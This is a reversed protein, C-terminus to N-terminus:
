ATPSINLRKEVVSLRAEVSDLRTLVGPANAALARNNLETYHSIAAIIRATSASLRDRLRQIRAESRADWDRSNPNSSDM